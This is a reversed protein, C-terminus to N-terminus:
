SLMANPRLSAPAFFGSISAATFFAAFIRCM